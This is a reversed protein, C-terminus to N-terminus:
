AGRVFDHFLADLAAQPDDCVGEHVPSPQLVDSRPATMWHFRESSPALALPGAEARGEGIARCARLYRVLLDLDVETGGVLRELASADDLVRVGLWDLTRAHLVVGVNVFTGLHVHPVARLVAFSYGTAGAAATGSAAGSM